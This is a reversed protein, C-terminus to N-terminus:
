LVGSAFLLDLSMDRKWNKLAPHKDGSVVQVSGDESKSFCLLQGPEALALFMPSHTAILVQKKPATSLVQFVSEIAVPHIGNEPEEILYVSHSDDLYPILTLAMFRLTGDSLLWLPAELSNKFKAVIYSRRDEERVVIKIDDLDEFVTKIHAKWSEFKKPNERMMKRLVKPLNSGDPQFVSPADPPCPMRMRETILQLKVLKKDLFDRFWLSVPFRERDEPLSSLAARDPPLVFYTVWDTSEARFYTKAERSIPQKWDRPKKQTIFDFPTKFIPFAKANQLDKHNRMIWLNEKVISVGTEERFGIQLEYRIANWSSKTVAEPVSLEISIVIDEGNKLWTLESFTDVRKEVAEKVGLYVVDRVFTIADILTSKGSGNPGILIHFNSLSLDVHKLCKYNGIQVRRLM